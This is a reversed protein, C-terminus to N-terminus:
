FKFFSKFSLYLTLYGMRIYPPDTVVSLTAIKAFFLKIDPKKIPPAEKLLLLRM